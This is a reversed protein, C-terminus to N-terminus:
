HSLDSTEILKGKEIKCVRQALQDIDEQDHTILITPIKRKKLVREVLNRAEARMSSDLSSFPEDLLLFRPRSIIARALAVRQQEGGSLVAAKRDLFSQMELSSTLQTMEEQIESDPIKRVIGAYVINQRASLHPFLDLTQFVVGLRRDAVSLKNLDVDQFNWEMTECHIFGCLARLISTKGSGSAGWLATVGEDLIHMEPIDIEFEEFNLFLKKITSM